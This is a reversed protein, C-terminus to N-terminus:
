RHRVHYDCEAHRAAISPELPALLLRGTSPHCVKRQTAPQSSHWPMPEDGHGLRKHVPSCEIRIPTRPILAATPGPTALVQQAATPSCHSTSPADDDDEDDNDEDNDDNDM